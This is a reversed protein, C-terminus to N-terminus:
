MHCLHFEWDGKPIHPRFDATGNNLVKATFKLLRRTELHWNQNEKQIEYAQTALCNEEMACSLFYLLRDELHASTELETEDIVLDPMKKVCSVGAVHHKNGHCKGEKGIGEFRCQSLKAEYGVCETGTLLINTGNSGGFFTTQYAENAYGLNLEKCIVNAELLSWGDGCVDGYPADGFKVEVRGEEPVRGGVLRITMAEKSKYNLKPAKLNVKVEENNEVQNEKEVTCTVGAAETAECDSAGWEDFRCDSLEKEKGTCFLNDMWFKRRAKGFTGSHTAKGGLRYNLQKCVVEAEYKDWEDDCVNGWKGNHFIEVNGESEDRGGVLKIAGEEKKLRKLHKRVLKQRESLADDKNPHYCSVSTVIIIFLTFYCWWFSLNILM